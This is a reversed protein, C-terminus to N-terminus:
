PGARAAGHMGWFTGPKATKDLNGARSTRTPPIELKEWIGPAEEDPGFVTVWLRDHEIGYVGTVLEHAWTIAEKKFYDGFSFNGLMEFFTLHRADHGVNEIDPTRMCKQSSTARAFPPQEHGLFYPVFQNMGATAVLLGPVSPILSSSPLVRHGHEEFFRLFTERIENGTRPAM